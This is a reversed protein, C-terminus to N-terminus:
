DVSLKRIHLCRELFQSEACSGAEGALPWANNSFLCQLRDPRGSGTSAVAPPALPQHIIELRRGSPCSVVRVAHFIKPSSVSRTISVRVIIRGGLLPRGSWLSGDM